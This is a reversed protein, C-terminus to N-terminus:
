GYFKNSFYYSKLYVNIYNGFIRYKFMHANIIIVAIAGAVVAVVVVVVVVVVVNQM